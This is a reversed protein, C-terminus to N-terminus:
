TGDDDNNDHPSPPAPQCTRFMSTTKRQPAQPRIIASHNPRGQTRRQLSILAHANDQEVIAPHMSSKLPVTPKKVGVSLILSLVTPSATEELDISALHCGSGVSGRATAKNLEIDWLPSEREERQRKSSADGRALAPHPIASNQELELGWVANMGADMRRGVGGRGSGPRATFTPLSPRRARQGSPLASGPSGRSSCRM